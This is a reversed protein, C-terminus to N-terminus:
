RLTEPDNKSTILHVRWDLSAEAYTREHEGDAEGADDDTLELFINNHGIQSRLAEVTLKSELEVLMADIEDQHQDISNPAGIRGRVHLDIFREQDSGDESFEESIESRGIFVLVHKGIDREPSETQGYVAEADWESPANSYIAVVADRLQKRVHAM